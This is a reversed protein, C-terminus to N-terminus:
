IELCKKNYQDGIKGNKEAKKQPGNRVLARRNKKSLLLQTAETSAM